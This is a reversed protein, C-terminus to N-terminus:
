SSSTSTSTSPKVPSLQKELQLEKDRELEYELAEKQKEEQLKLARKKLAESRETLTRMERKINLLKNHYLNAKAIMAELDADKMKDELKAREQQISTILSLQYQNMEELSM